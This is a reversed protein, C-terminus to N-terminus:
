GELKRRMIPPIVEAWPENELVEQPIEEGTEQCIGYTGDEIRLLANDIKELLGRLVALSSGQLIDEVADNALDDEDPNDMPLEPRSIEEIDARVEIREQLLREKMSQIFDQSLM